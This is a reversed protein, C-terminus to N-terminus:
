TGPTSTARTSSTASSTPARRVRRPLDVDAQRARVAFMSRSWPTPYAQQEIVEIAGLDILELPRVELAVATM